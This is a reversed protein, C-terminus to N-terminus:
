PQFLDRQPHSTIPNELVIPPGPFRGAARGVLIFTLRRALEPSCRRAVQRADAWDAELIEGDPLTLSAPLAVDQVGGDFILALMDPRRTTAPASGLLLLDGVPMEIGLEETVERRVTDVPGEGAEALGGPIEWEDKYSTRLLLVRGNPETVFLGAAVTARHFGAALTPLPDAAPDVDDVLRAVRVLDIPEGREFGGRRAVGEVRLGVARATALAAADRAPVASEVRRYGADFAWRVAQAVVDADPGGPDARWDLWVVQPAPTTYLMVTVAGRDDRYVREAM